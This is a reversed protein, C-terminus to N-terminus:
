HRSARHKAPVVTITVTNSNISNGCDNTVKVWFSSNGFLPDSTFSPRDGGVPHSPDGSTGAFWAYHFSTGGSAAVALSVPTNSSITLNETIANIVVPLCSPPPQGGSGVTVTVPDSNALGCSNSVRVWYTTTASPTDTANAANGNPLPSSVDLPQGRYWQYQLSSGNAVVALNVTGGASVASPSAGVSTITPAICVATVTVTMTRTQAAGCTNSVEAWYSTTQTVPGVTINQGTGVRQSKDPKVGQYWSVAGPTGAYGFSLSVMSGSTVQQDGPQTSIVPAVCGSNVMVTAPSSNAFGCGNTVQVWYTTTQTPTVNLTSSTGNPSVPQAQSPPNGIYWQYTLTATGSAGVTLSAPSGLNVSTGFPQTTISPATCGGGTVTITAASSNVTGCGNSVQVWYTTTQTPTVNLTASTGNQLIPQSQDGATGIYWQYTLTATGSAVVTLSAPTGSSVTSGSPQQSISPQVCSGSGPYLAAIAHLDWSQAVANLGHVIFSHMIASSSCELSPDTTCAISPNDAQTQDSHRLGLTHGLEHMVASNFDGSSFLTTCNAIGQNMQVDAETNTWFTEGNLTNTSSSVWAGGIGLVGGSSCNYAAISPTRGTLDQEFIVTNKGDPSSLGATGGGMGGYVYNVNSGGKNTWGNVGTQAATAGNGPAGTETNFTFITVASPFVNWRGGHTAGAFSITSCYTSGAFANTAPKLKTTSQTATALPARDVFYDERGISGHTEARLFDLFRDALRPQEVHPTGDLDWGSIEGDARMALTRGLRDHVLDFAGLAVEAVSWTQRPTAKLLLIMQQGAAFQPMGPVILGRGDAFGGLEHVDITTLGAPGAVIDDVRFTTVTEIGGEATQQSWSNLATAVVVADARHVLERDTPVVYTVAYALAASLCVSLAFFLTRVRM